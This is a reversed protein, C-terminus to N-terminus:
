RFKFLEIEALAFAGLCLLAVLVLALVTLIIANKRGRNYFWRKLKKLSGTRLKEGCQDCSRHRRVNRHACHPCEIYLHASCYTCAVAAKANPRGCKACKVTDNTAQEDM